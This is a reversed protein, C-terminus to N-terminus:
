TMWFKKSYHQTTNRCMNWPHSPFFLTLITIRYNRTSIVWTIRSWAFDGKLYEKPDMEGARWNIWTGVNTSKRLINLLGHIVGALM